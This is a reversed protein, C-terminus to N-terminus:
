SWTYTMKRMGLFLLANLVLLLRQNFLSLAVVLVVLLADCVQRILLRLLKLFGLSADCLLVNLSDYTTTTTKKLQQLQQNKGSTKEEDNQARKWMRPLLSVLQLSRNPAVCARPRPSSAGCQRVPPPPPSSIRAPM